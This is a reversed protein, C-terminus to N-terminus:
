RCTFSSASDIPGAGDYHAQQPYPCLPRTRGPWPTAPGASAVIRDPAEGKEVWAVLPTLADYLDTSPGGSNSCHNMGPVLYLRAFKRTAEAGGQAAQLRQYYDISDNASFIADSVGHVILMKGGRNRFAAVDTSTTNYIAAYADMRAPDTDFNFAMYDFNPAPPTFFELRMADAAILTANRANPTTTTSTGLKWNRWDAGAIGADWPWSAYLSQGASNKPGGFDKKLATVQAATLCSDTKAGTCQLVAPDFSCAAPNAHIIGDAAGDLTDCRQLVANSVLKLDADSLAQSLVPSVASYSILGWVSAMSAERAVKIAPANAAIGDFYDPFRQPFLMAQRGGGSCGVFYSRDPKRGYATNILSKATVTVVDYANYAHDIRAQPDLGFSASTGQHGGDTSVVAFGQALAGTKLGALSGGGALSGLADRVVGDNGGGGQFMFRGNWAAPLRLQFGIYYAQGDAGTRQNMRGDLVCHAPQPNGGVVTGAAVATATLTMGAPARAPLAACDVALATEAPPAAPTPTDDDGSGNCASALLALGCAAAVTAPTRLSRARAPAMPARHM